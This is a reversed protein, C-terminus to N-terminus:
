EFRAEVVSFDDDLQPSGRLERVHALLMGMIDAEHRREETLYSICAKLNWVARKDRRIEFVGDSFVLLRAAPPLAAAHVEFTTELLVGMVPGTAPFVLAEAGNPRLLVAAPHGGSAYTLTRDLTHYVGYWITFFKYGHQSGQFARNLAGLVADPQRPDAGSLSGSRIVNTVTVALLASDLGHGTVDILYIALHETDVWHYGITDGGLTSSPIYRWDVTVPGLMPPPICGRIYKIGAAIDERMRENGLERLLTDADVLDPTSFGETFKGVAATLATFAEHRRGQRHWLRALSMTARLEWAISGQRLAVELGNRFSQEAAAEDQTEALHLEGRLRHLEAEQSREDNKEVLEFAEEFTRRAEEYRGAETQAEALLSLYYPLGLGAGTARYAELGKQLLQLGEELHGRLLLGAASFLTGSAHWFLFGQDGAIRTEEDGAAQAQAGLRLHQHLWGSHHLAYELSFPHHLSRALDRAERSLALAREPTGLHWSALALYCRHAVGSDEGTRAAWYATRARDDYDALARACSEHARAFDGRYHRTLGQLLLAEMLIGPDEQREALRMADRALDTCHRFDGRVIHYAFHGRMMAFAQMPQGVREALTRARHVVPGVEPAAYGRSAIYATGLPGLLDLERVDREPSEELTLLMELGKELHSISEVNAFREHSRTGARLWYGV